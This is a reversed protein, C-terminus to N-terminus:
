LALALVEELHEVPVSRAQITAQAIALQAGPIRAPSCSVYDVGLSHFFHISAPDGGHEGCVGIKIADNASRAQNIATKILSGVGLQDVTVFPDEKLIGLQLYAELYRHADDRSFGFTMQTLDNTGFSIFDVERAIAGACVAARPLEIMTGFKYPITLQQDSFLKHITEEIINRLFRVEEVSSVLPVMIEPVVHLGEGQLRVAALMIAHVQMTMIEPFTIALRCGRHGMMPNVEALEDMRSLVRRLENYKTTNHDRDALTLATLVENRDPLFEHLPPDILRITVPLGRMERFIKEFDSQQMPLLRALARQREATTTALIMTRIHPLRDPAFFMHETRCLGIGAVSHRYARAADQPTDANARVATRSSERAWALLTALARDDSEPERLPLKGVYINGTPADISLWDGERLELDDVHLVGVHENVKIQGVGVICCKGMGRAVVAAHSTAGGRTTVFGVAAEMGQIDDATTEQRVLILPTKRDKATLEVARHASFVIKGVASGPSASLGTAIPHVDLDRMDLQPSLMESIMSPKVREIAEAKSIIGENVMDVAYRVAAQASSKATRTQLLFLKNQQVTFEFDQVDRYHSELKSVIQGLQDYITPMSCAIENLGMPTRVGAVIDEGQADCLFEGFLINEGTSPNRTFGVGTGSNAGCNGFVMAQVTVATGSEEPINHMRRYHQARENKWSSFVADIAMRLQTHADMPFPHGTHKLIADKYREIVEKLASEDLESDAHVNNDQKVADFVHNFTSKPVHLVVGGFMQLLRRYSDLAFRLSKHRAALGHCNADNLGINLITDMMGPMSVAAGSRVSVLLPETLSGFSQGQSAELWRMADCIERDLWEPTGSNKFYLRCAETHITFGPPVPIGLETMESLGAGKGGLEERMSGNGEAEGAGFRYIHKKSSDGHDTM